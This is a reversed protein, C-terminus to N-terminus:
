PTAPVKRIEAGTAHRIANLIAPATPILVHEGLGKAGYPGHADPVEVILSNIEPVDGITPILYDHLNENVGPLYEEMLALGIGQAIGGEIQGEVLMPNIARGVDHAATIRVLEVQGLGTDVCLEVLQAGYGFQAYPEGQGNEDLDKTPADYTQQEHFVFGDETESLSTLDILRSAGADEIRLEGDSLHLRADDSVNAHRLLQQRLATGCLYAAKGSIFTQRSASTKGADPTIQTDGCEINITDLPLGLTEAFIQAIVTNAGQGIDMAGQFLTIRGIKSIGARITSPNPLATNGCGYWCSAIGIGYRKRGNSGAPPSANFEQMRDNAQKWHPELAQLCAEIGVGTEFVQGTGTPQGNRLANLLRIALRDMDLQDALCDILSEVAIASQPVGFGRFAGSVPGNTHVAQATADYDPVFYPGSAHVPVRNAVTPGWSAYAGTDFLGKFKLAQFQGTQDASLSADMRAPHRKTTAMMSEPRSYALRVPRILVYAALALYPQVSLDLKTGFGGGVATPIVRIDDFRLNLIKAIEEHDMHPAQTSAYIELCGDHMRAWGAEPEIPAHEVYSTEFQDSVRCLEGKPGTDPVARKVKGETLINNKRQSHLPKSEPRLAQESCLNAPLEEWSVPFEERDFGSMFAPDGVVMAVAEGKFRCFDEAFVPQDSFPPIVGFINDGPIDAATFVRVIGSNNNVFEEIDGFTFRTHHHPSRIVKVVLADSPVGDDGFLQQGRFKQVGDVRAVPQGVIALGETESDKPLQNQVTETNAAALVADAIKRYGTCRCLVGSLADEVDARTPEANQRLLAVASVAMGPTCIGCQVGGNEQFAKQLVQMHVDDRLGEVTQVDVRD